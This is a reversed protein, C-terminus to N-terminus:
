PDLAFAVPLLESLAATVLEGGRQYTIECDPGCLESLVQLCVGCPPLTDLSGAVAIAEFERHGQAIAQGVASREACFTASYSANEVNTGIFVEGGATLLAAGVSVGSYPSYSNRAAEKARAHLKEPTPRGEGGIAHFM